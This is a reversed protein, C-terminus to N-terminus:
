DPNLRHCSWLGAAVVLDSHEGRIGRLLPNHTSSMTIRAAFCWWLNFLDPVQDIPDREDAV